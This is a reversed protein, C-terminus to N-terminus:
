KYRSRDIEYHKKYMIYGIFYNWRQIFNERYTIKLGCKIGFIAGGIIQKIHLLKFGERKRLGAGLWRIRLYHPIKTINQHHLVPNPLIYWKLGKKSYIFSAYFQDEASSYYDLDECELILDRYTICCGFAGNGGKLEYPHDIKRSFYDEYYSGIVGADSYRNEIVCKIIEVWQETVEVDSDVFAIMETKAEKAGLRRAAGLSANTKLIICNFKKAIEITDDESYRDVIIKNNPDGYKDISELTLWLTNGSNWTPIIYDIKQM